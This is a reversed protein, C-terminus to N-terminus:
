WTEYSCLVRWEVFEFEMVVSSACVFRIWPRPALRSRFSICFSRRFANKYKESLIRSAKKINKIRADWLLSAFLDICKCLRLLVNSSHRRIDWILPFFDKKQPNIILKYWQVYLFSSCTLRSFKKRREWNRRHQCRFSSIKKNIKIEARM